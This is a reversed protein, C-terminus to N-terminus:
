VVKEQKILLPHFDPSITHTNQLKIRIEGNFKIKIISYIKM